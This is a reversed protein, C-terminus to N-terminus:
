LNECLRGGLLTGKKHTHFTLPKVTEHLTVRIQYFACILNKGPNIKPANTLTTNQTRYVEVPLRATLIGTATTIVVNPITTTLRLFKLYGRKYLRSNTVNVTEGNKHTREIKKGTYHTASHISIISTRCASTLTGVM